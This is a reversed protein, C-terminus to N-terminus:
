RGRRSAPWSQVELGALAGALCMERGGANDAWGMGKPKNDFYAETIAEALPLRLRLEEAKAERVKLLALRYQRHLTEAREAASSM